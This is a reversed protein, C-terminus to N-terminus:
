CRRAPTEDWVPVRGTVWVHLLRAPLHKAHKGPMMIVAGDTM